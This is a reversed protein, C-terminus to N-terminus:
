DSVFMQKDRFHLDSGGNRTQRKKTEHPKLECLISIKRAKVSRRFHVDEATLGKGIARWGLRLQIFRKFPNNFPMYFISFLIWTLFFLFPTRSIWPMLHFVESRSRRSSRLLRFDFILHCFFSNSISNQHPVCFAFSFKDAFSRGREWHNKM